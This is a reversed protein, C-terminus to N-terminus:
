PLYTNVWSIFVQRLKTSHGTTCPKNNNVMCDSSYSILHRKAVSIIWHYVVIIGFQGWTKTFCSDTVYHFGTWNSINIYELGNVQKSM